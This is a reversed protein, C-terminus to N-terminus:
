GRSSVQRTCAVNGSLRARVATIAVQGLNGSVDPCEHHVDEEKLLLVVTSSM